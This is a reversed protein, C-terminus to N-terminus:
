HRRRREPIAVIVTDARHQAVAGRTAPRGWSRCAASGCTGSTPTTTWSAWRAGSTRGPRAADLRDPRKGARGAGVMLVRSSEGHQLDHAERERAWRWLARGGGALVLAGLTAGAPVTRPLWHGGLNVAFAVVGAGVIVVGLIIMEAFSGNLARGQHLRVPLGM